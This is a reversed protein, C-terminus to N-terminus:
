TDRIGEYRMLYLKGNLGDKYEQKIVGSSIFM